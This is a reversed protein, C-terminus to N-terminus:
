GLEGKLSNSIYRHAQYTEICHDRIQLTVKSELMEGFSNIDLTEPLSEWGKKMATNYVFLSPM